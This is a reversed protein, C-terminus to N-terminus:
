FLATKDPSEGLAETSLLTVPDGPQLALMEAASQQNAALEIMGSSGVLAATEGPPIDAFTQVVPLLRGNPLRVAAPAFYRPEESGVRPEPWPFLMWDHGARRFAGLSTILNGFRDAHLVEGHLVAQGDEAELHRKPLPIRKLSPVVPGFARGPVGRAAYAAAPAFIDRGHFTASPTPLHFAPNALAWARATHDLVYTLLGNDPAIFRYGGSEVIVPLRHSGVGPDIIALFVTGKPFHPLSQWLVFAGRRIDGPPIEHTLDVLTTSTRQLIVGKMIGVYPDQVGFDTLIAILAPM